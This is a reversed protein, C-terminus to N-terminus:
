HHLDAMESFPSSTFVADHNVALLICKKSRSQVAITSKPHIFGDNILHTDLAETKIMNCRLETVSVHGRRGDILAFFILNLPHYYTVSVVAKKQSNSLLPRSLFKISSYSHEKQSSQEKSFGLLAIHGDSFGCVIDGNECVCCISLPEANLLLQDKNSQALIEMDSARVITFLGFGVERDFWTAIVECKPSMALLAKVNDSGFTTRSTAGIIRFDTIGSAAVLLGDSGASFLTSGQLSFFLCSVSSRPSHLRASRIVTNSNIHVIDITGDSFGIAAEIHPTDQDNVLSRLGLRHDSYVQSLRPDIGNLNSMPSLRLAFSTVQIESTKYDFYGNSHLVAASSTAEHPEKVPWIKISADRGVTGLFHQDGVLVTAACIISGSHSEALVRVNRDSTNPAFPIVDSIIRAEVVGLRYGSKEGTDAMFAIKIKSSARDTRSKWRNLSGSSSPKIGQQLILCSKISGKLKAQWLNESFSSNWLRIVGVDDSTLNLRSIDKGFDLNISPLVTASLSISQIADDHLRFIGEVRRTAVNVQALSGKSTTAFLRLVKDHNAKSRDITLKNEFSDEGQVSSILRSPPLGPGALSVPLATSFPQVTSSSFPELNRGRSPLDLGPPQLLVGSAGVDLLPEFSFDTYDGDILSFGEVPFQSIKSCCCCGGLPSEIQWFHLAGAKDKDKNTVFSICLMGADSPSFVLRRVIRADSPLSHSSVNTSGCTSCFDSTRVLSIFSKEECVSAVALINRNMNFSIGNPYLEVIGKGHINIISINESTNFDFLYVRANRENMSGSIGVALCKGDKSLAFSQVLSTVPFLRQHSTEVNLAIVFNGCSYLVMGCPSEVLVCRPNLGFLQISSSPLDNSATSELASMPSSLDSQDKRSHIVGELISRLRYGLSTASDNM